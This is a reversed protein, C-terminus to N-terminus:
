TSWFFMLYTGLGIFYIAALGLGMDFVQRPSWKWTSAKQAHKWALIIVLILGGLICLIGPHNRILYAITLSQVAGGVLDFFWDLM